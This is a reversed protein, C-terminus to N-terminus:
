WDEEESDFRQLAWEDLKWKLTGERVMRGVKRMLNPVTGASVFAVQPGGGSGGNLIAMFSGGKDQIKISMVRPHKTGKTERFVTRIAQGCVTDKRLEKREEDAQKGREDQVKKTAM